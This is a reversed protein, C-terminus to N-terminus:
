CRGLVLCIYLIFPFKCHLSVAYDEQSPNEISHLGLEDSMYGVKGERLVSRETERLEKGEGGNRAKPFAFRREILRGRLIKMLCHSDAHDHM